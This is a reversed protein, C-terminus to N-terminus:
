RRRGRPGRRAGRTARQSVPGNAEEVLALEVQAEDIDVRLIRVRVLDGLSYRRREHDGELALGGDVVRYYDNHLQSVHLLGDVFLDQLTVFLGFHKVSTVVAMMEEGVRDRIYLCKQRAEVHRAAAEARRELQSCIRGLHEMAARDYVFAGPKHRDIIHGLARHVLLDPYRRIPSTFHTYIGLALGYHGVNAPQYVAQALSRLVAMSLNAADPRDRLKVLAKNLEGASRLAHEAVPIGISQLLLRLEEFRDPDPGPHVRYLTALRHRRILQGAAVNAAIMLEEIVRHADNRERPAVSAIRGEDDLAIKVEPLDLDLAGRRQRARHLLGWAEYLAELRPRLRSLPGRRPAKEGRMLADVQDYTLRAHSHIVARFFRARGPKGQGDIRLECAIALRDVAPNLSCLGNSLAEPLMPLVRDTFYVSTGRRRAERDLVDGDKVYHAVDAIAVVLRFGDGDREAFVADDFDRADEGDITVLPLQRLDERGALDDKRVRGGFRAAAQEVAEPIGGPLDFIRIAAETMIGPAEPPGLVTLIRGQPSHGPEPYQLIELQVLEGPQAGARHHDPVIFQHFARGAEVVFGVGHERRYRGVLTTRGRALIEVLTGARRGARGAGSLRVAIRDGTLLQNMEHAPLYIDDSGDDPTLFGYGDRHASVTGAIAEIKELLCFENRRNQLLQGSGVMEVLRRRLAARPKEGGLGFADALQGLTLPVGADRLRDLVEAPAPVPHRYPSQTDAAPRRARAPNSRRRTM